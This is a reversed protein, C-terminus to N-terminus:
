SLLGPFVEASIDVISISAMGSQETVSACDLKVKGLVLFIRLPAAPSSYALHKVM